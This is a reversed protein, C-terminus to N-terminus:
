LYPVSNGWPFIHYSSCGVQSGLNLVVYPDSSKIDRIALNTGQIVKVKLMGIFEVM